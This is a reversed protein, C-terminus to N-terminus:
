NELLKTRNRMAKHFLGTADEYFDPATTRVYGLSKMTMDVEGAIASTSTKSFISIQDVVDSAIPQDDAFESDDNVVEFFDIRPQETASPAKLQYIRQGGLLTILSSNAILATRITTKVDAIM